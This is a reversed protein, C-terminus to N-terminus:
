QGYRARNKEWWEEWQRVAQEREEETGKAKFAIFQRTLVMLSNSALGRIRPDPDRLFRIFYPIAIPDKLNALAEIVPAVAGFSPDDLLAVLDKAYATGGLKGIAEVCAFRVAGVPDRTHRVLSPLAAQEGLNGLDEAADRRIEWVPHELDLLLATVRQAQDQGPSEANGAVTESATADDPM